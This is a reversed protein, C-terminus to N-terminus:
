VDCRLVARAKATALSSSPPPRRPNGNWWPWHLSLEVNSISALDALTEVM